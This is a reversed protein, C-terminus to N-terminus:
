YGKSLGQVLGLSVSFWGSMAFPLYVRFWGQIFWLGASFRLGVRFWGLVLGFDVRFCGWM